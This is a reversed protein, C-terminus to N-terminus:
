KKFKIVDGITFGASPTQFDSADIEEDKEMKQLLQIKFYQELKKALKLPPEQHGSEIKQLLSSREALDLAVEEQTKGLKERAHKIRFAYDKVLFESDNLELPLDQSAFRHTRYYELRKNVLDKPVNRMPIVEGFQVCKDCLLLMSGEVIARHMREGLYGCMECSPM